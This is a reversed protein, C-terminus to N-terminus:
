TTEQKTNGNKVLWVHPVGEEHDEKGTSIYGSKEYFTRASTQAHILITRGGRNYIVDEAKKLLSAGLGTGRYEKIVAFRGILYEGMDNTFIRCTAIPKDDYVIIHTAINDIDDFEDVFGQEEVFVKQRIYISDNNLEEFFKYEIM